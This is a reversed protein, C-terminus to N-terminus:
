QQILAEIYPARLQIQARDSWEHAEPHASLTNWLSIATSRKGSAYLAAGLYYTTRFYEVDHIYEVLTERRQLDDLLTSLTNYAYDFTYSRLVDILVTNQILFSFSLHEVARDYRGTSYFLFGLLRHAKEVQRNDYRYLSLFREIGEDSLTKTMATRVFSSTDQQWLSDSELIHYLIKELELYNEQRLLIDAISYAINFRFDPIELLNRLEYAKRYQDLAVSFEGEIRYVEGIWYEAEPYSALSGLLELAKQASNDISDRPYRYYLEDLAKRAKFYHREEIYAEIVSLDDGMRRVQPVSLLEIFAQKFQIFQDQRKRKADEFSLLATGYHEDKFEHKGRELLLWYPDDIKQANASFPGCLLLFGIFVLNAAVKKM